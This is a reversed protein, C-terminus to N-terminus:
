ACRSPRVLDTTTWQANITDVSVLKNINVKLSKDHHLMIHYDFEVQTDDSNLLDRIKMFELVAIVDVPCSPDREIAKRPDSQALYTCVFCLM